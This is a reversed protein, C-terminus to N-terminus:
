RANRGVEIGRTRAVPVTAAAAVRVVMVSRWGHPRSPPRPLRLWPLQAVVVAALACFRIPRAHRM